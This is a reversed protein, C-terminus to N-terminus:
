HLREGPAKAPELTLDNNGGLRAPAAQCSESVLKELEGLGATFLVDRLELGFQVIKALTPKQPFQDPAMKPLM